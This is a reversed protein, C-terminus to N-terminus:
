QIKGLGAVGTFHLLPGPTRAAVALAQRHDSTVGATRFEHQEMRIGVRGRASRVVRGAISLQMPAVNHLLVPWAVALEVHAGPPLDRGADFLIGGSSLDVTKGEGSDLVRRRRLVKWRVELEIEYRRDRRREGPIGQTDSYPTEWMLASNM